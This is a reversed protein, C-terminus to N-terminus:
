RIYKICQIEAAAAAATSDSDSDRREGQEREQPPTPLHYCVFKREVQPVSLAFYHMRSGDQYPKPNGTCNSEKKGKQVRFIRSNRVIWLRFCTRTNMRVFRIQASSPPFRLLAGAGVGEPNRVRMDLQPNEHYSLREYFPSGDMLTADEEGFDREDRDGM